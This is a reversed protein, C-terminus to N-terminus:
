TYSTYICVPASCMYRYVVCVPQNSKPAQYESERSVSSPSLPAPPPPARGAPESQDNYYEQRSVLM